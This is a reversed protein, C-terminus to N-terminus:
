EEKEAQEIAKLASITRERLMRIHETCPESDDYENTCPGDHQGERLISKLAELLADRDARLKIIRHAIAKDETEGCSVERMDNVGGTGGDSVSLSWRQKRPRESHYVLDGDNGTIALVTQTYGITM